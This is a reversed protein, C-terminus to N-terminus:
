KVESMKARLAEIRDALEKLQRALHESLQQMSAALRGSTAALSQSAAEMKRIGGANEVTLEHDLWALQATQLMFARAEALDDAAARLARQTDAIAAALARDSDQKAAAVSEALERQIQRLRDDARREVDRAEVELTAVSTRLAEHQELVKTSVTEPAAPVDARYVFSVVPPVSARGAESAPSATRRTWADDPTDGPLIVLRADAADLFALAGTTGSQRIAAQIADAHWVLAQDRAKVAQAQEKGIVSPGACGALLVAVTGLVLQRM